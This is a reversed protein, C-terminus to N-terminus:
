LKHSDYTQHFLIEVWLSVCSAGMDHPLSDFLVHCLAEAVAAKLALPIRM